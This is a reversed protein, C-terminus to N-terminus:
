NNIVAPMMFASFSVEHLSNPSRYLRSDRDM